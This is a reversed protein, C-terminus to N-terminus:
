LSVYRSSGDTSPITPTFSLILLYLALRDNHYAPVRIVFISNRLVALM